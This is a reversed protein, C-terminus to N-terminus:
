TMDLTHDDKRHTVTTNATCCLRVRVHVGAARAPSNRSKGGPVHSISRGAVVLDHLIVHSEPQIRSSIM